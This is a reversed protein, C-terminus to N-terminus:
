SLFYFGLNSPSNLLRIRLKNPPEVQAKYQVWKVLTRSRYNLITKKWCSIRSPYETRKIKATCTTSQRALSTQRRSCYFRGDQKECQLSSVNERLCKRYFEAESPLHLAIATKKRKDKGVPRQFPLRNLKCRASVNFPKKGTKNCQLLLCTKKGLATPLLVIIRALQIYNMVRHSHHFSRFCCHFHTWFRCKTCITNLCKVAAYLPLGAWLPPVTFSRRQMYCQVAVDFYLKLNLKLIAFVMLRRIGYHKHKTCITWVSKQVHM